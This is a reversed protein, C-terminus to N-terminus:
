EDDSGMMHYADGALDFLSPDIMENFTVNAEFVFGAQQLMQVRIRVPLETQPDVWLTIEVNEECIIFMITNIGNINEGAEVTVEGKYNLIQTHWDFLKNELADKANKGSAFDLPMAAQRQPFIILGKGLETDMVNIVAPAGRAGPLPQTEVRIKSPAQYFVKINMLPQGESYMQGSYVMSKIDNLKKVIAAFAPTSVSSTFFLATTLMLVAATGVFTLQKPHWLQQLNAWWRTKSQEPKECVSGEYQEIAAVLRLQMTNDDQESPQQAKVKNLMYVVAQDSEHNTSM